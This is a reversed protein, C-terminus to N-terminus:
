NKELDDTNLYIGCEFNQRLKEIMTSKGSGNPGAIIRIRDTRKPM